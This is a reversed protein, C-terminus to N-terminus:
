LDQNQLPPPLRPMFTNEVVWLFREYLAATSFPKVLFTTVGAERAELVRREDSHATMMIFGMQPNLVDSGEARVQRLLDIGNVNEMMWDCIVIDVRHSRMLTYADAGDSAEYITGTGFAQIIDHVLKRMHSNDDVVMVSLRSFDFREPAGPLVFPYVAM